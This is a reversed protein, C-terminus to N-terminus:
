LEQREERDVPGENTPLTISFTSGKKIEDTRDGLSTKSLPSKVEIKGGHGEVMSKALALGLGIGKAKTTFLPEFLKDLNEAPIGIGTDSFSVRVWGLSSLLSPGVSGLTQITLQGLTGVAGPLTMAQIANLIINDFVQALQRPDAPIPPLTEDLQTVIDINQPVAARSLAKRVVHNLDLKRQLPPRTRALDLLSSIIRESTEVEKDVIELAQKIDPDPQELVMNLYYAANKIAGLPNRLEHAVGGALQGLAALKEQRILQEQASQLEQTREEVMDKLKTEMKHKYLAMEITAHLERDQIPKVLYGFPETAKAQQLLVGDSYASLYIVPIDMRAHIQTATEIGNLEGALYVDMLALDPPSEKIRQLAEEGSAVTDLVDYGLETLVNKLRLAIIGNDEVILIREGTM